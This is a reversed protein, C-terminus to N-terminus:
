LPIGQSMFEAPLLWFERWLARGRLDVRAGRQKVALRRCAVVHIPKLGSLVSSPLCSRTRLSTRSWSGWMYSLYLFSEDYTSLSSKRAAWHDLIRRVIYPVCTWDRTQSPEVHGPAVLGRSSFGGLGLAQAGCRSFGACHSAWLGCSPLAQVCCGLGLATLCFWLVLAWCPLSSVICMFSKADNNAHLQCEISVSIFRLCSLTLTLFYTYLFTWPPGAQCFSSCPKSNMPQSLLHGQIGYVVCSRYSLLPHRVPPSPLPESWDWVGQPWLFSNM